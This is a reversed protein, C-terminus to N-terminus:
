YTLPGGFNKRNDPFNRGNPNPSVVIRDPGPDPFADPFWDEDSSLFLGRLLLGPMRDVILDEALSAVFANICCLSLDHCGTM